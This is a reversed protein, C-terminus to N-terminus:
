EIMRLYLQWPSIFLKADHKQSALELASRIHVAPDKASLDKAAKRLGMRAKLM